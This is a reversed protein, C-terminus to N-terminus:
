PTTTAGQVASVKQVFSDFFQESLRKSTSDILRGGLQAIKGGIAVNVKYKLLTGAEHDELLVDARGKAFGAVGGKGEGVIAYSTPADIDQLHVDGAFRAKIPGIKVSVTATMHDTSDAELSECGPICARLVDPNNLMEWVVPRPAPLVREAQIEM